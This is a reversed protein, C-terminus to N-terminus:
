IDQGGNGGAAHPRAHRASRRCFSRARAVFSAVLRTRRSGGGPPTCRCTEAAAAAPCGAPSPCPIPISARSVARFAREVAIQRGANAELSVYVQGPRCMGMGTWQARQLPRRVRIVLQLGNQLWGSMMIRQITTYRVYYSPRHVGEQSRNQVSCAWLVSHDTSTPRLPPIHHYRLVGVGWSTCPGTQHVVLGCM